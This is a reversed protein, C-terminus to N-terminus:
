AVKYSPPLCLPLIYASPPLPVLTFAPTSLFSPPFFSLLSFSISLVSLFSVSPFLFFSLSLHVLPSFVYKSLFFITSASLPCFVNFPSRSTLHRQAFLCPLPYIILIFPLVPFLSTPSLRFLALHLFSRFSRFSRLSCFLLRFISFLAFPLFFPFTLFYPLIHSFPSIYSHPPLSSLPFPLFSPSQFPNSLCSLPPFCSLHPFVSFIPFASFLIFSSFSPFLPFDPVRIHITSASGQYCISCSRCLLVLFFM